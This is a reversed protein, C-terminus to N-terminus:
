ILFCPWSTKQFRRQDPYELFYMHILNAQEFVSQMLDDGEMDIIMGTCAYLHVRVWSGSWDSIHNSITIAGDSIYQHTLPPICMQLLASKDMITVYIYYLDREGGQM